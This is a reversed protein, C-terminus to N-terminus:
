IVVRYVIYGISLLAVVLVLVVINCGNNQKKTGKDLEEVIHIRLPEKM